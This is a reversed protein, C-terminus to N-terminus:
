PKFVSATAGTTYNANLADAGTTNNPYPKNTTDPTYDPFILGRDAQAVGLHSRLADFIVDMQAVKFIQYGRSSSTDITANGLGSYGKPGTDASGGSTTPKGCYIGGSVNKGIIGWASAKGHDTGNSGNETITRGFETMTVICVKEWIGGPTPYGLDQMFARIGQTFQFLNKGQARTGTGPHHVTGQGDNLNVQPVQDDHTDYGPSHDIAVLQLGVPIAGSIAFQAKLIAAVNALQQAFSNRNTSTLVTGTDNGPYVVGAADLTTYNPQPIQALLSIDAMLKKGFAFCADDYVKKSVATQDYITNLNNTVLTQIASTENSIGLSYSSLATFSPVISPGRMAKILGGSISAAQIAAPSPPTYNQLYRNLYGDTFSGLGSAATGYEVLDMQEFHSLNTNARGTLPFIALHGNNIFDQFGAYAAGSNWYGGSGFTGFFQPHYGMYADFNADGTTCAIVEDIPNVAGGPNKLNITPRRNLYRQGAPCTGGPGGITADGYPVLTNIGDNATRQFVVVLVKDALSTGALAKSAVARGLVSTAVSGVVLNKMFLRRTLHNLYAKSMEQQKFM